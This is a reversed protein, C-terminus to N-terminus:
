HSHLTKRIKVLDSVAEKLQTAAQLTDEASSIYKTAASKALEYEEKLEGLDTTLDDLKDQFFCPTIFM